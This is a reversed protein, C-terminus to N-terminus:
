QEIGITMTSTLGESSHGYSIATGLIISRNLVSTRIQSGISPVMNSINLVKNNYQFKNISYMGGRIDFNNSINLIFGIMIFDNIGQSNIASIDYQILYNYKRYLYNAGISLSEPIDETYASVMESGADIRWSYRAFCDRVVIGFGYNNLEYQIGFDLGAGTGKQGAIIDNRYGKVAIGIGVSDLIKLGFILAGYGEDTSIIDLPNNMHDYTQIRKTGLRTYYLSVSAAKSISKSILGSQIYRDLPMFSNSIVIGISKSKNLSAPNAAPGNIANIGAINAGGISSSFADPPIRLQNASFANVSCILIICPVLSRYIM